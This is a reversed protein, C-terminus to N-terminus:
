QPNGATAENQFHEARPAEIILRATSVVHRRSLMSLVWMNFFFDSGTDMDDAVPHQKSTAEEHESGSMRDRPRGAADRRVYREPAANLACWRLRAHAQDRPRSSNPSREVTTRRLTAAGATESVVSAQRCDLVNATSHAELEAATAQSPESHSGEEEMREDDCRM